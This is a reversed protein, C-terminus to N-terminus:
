FNRSTKDCSTRKLNAALHAQRTPEPLRYKTLCRKVIHLATALSVRHGASIILPKCRKKTRLLMGITEKKWILPVSSGPEEGLESEPEGVLINKAVGITPVDLLVGVHSAIGLGRPHSIGHGDVMWIDPKILLQNYANVLSPAERFGLFGTIYPFTQKEVVAASEAVALDHFSLRVASAYVLEAPDFLNNSIDMGGIWDISDFRDELSVKESLAHQTVTAEAISAPYLWHNLM